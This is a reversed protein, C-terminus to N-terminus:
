AVCQQEYFKRPEEADTDESHLCPLPCTLLSLAALSASYCAALAVRAAPGCFLALYPSRDRLARVELTIADGDMNQEFIRGQEDQVAFFITIVDKNNNRLVISPVRSRQPRPGGPASPVAAARCPTAPMSRSRAFRAKLHIRCPPVRVREHQALATQSAAVAAAM